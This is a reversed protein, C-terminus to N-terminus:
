AASIFLRRGECNGSLAECSTALLFCHVINHCHGGAELRVPNSELRFTLVAARNICFKSASFYSIVRSAIRLRM